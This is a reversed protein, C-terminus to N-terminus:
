IRREVTKILDTVVENYPVPLGLRKAERVVAGNIADIETKRRFDIDQGMSSRNGRTAEAVGKVREIPNGEIRIGKQRAVDAAESVLAEMIRLTEPYDLLQGNKLETLATLANIGVNVLLKDWILGHINTSVETEIDAECFMRAVQTARESVGPDLVGIFTKGRGAHRVHGPGLFTAGQGTVGLMVKKRDIRKCLLEENGLGNQLTLFITDEKELALADSVAQETHYTKVFFIVLDAKGISVIDRTANVGIIQLKDGEELTLGVANIVDVQEKQVDVLWVEEGSFALLGGFLGGMAGAGMIVTKM